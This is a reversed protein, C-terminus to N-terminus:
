AVFKYVGSTNGKAISSRWEKICNPAFFFGEEVGEFLWVHRNCMIAVIVEAVAGPSTHWGKLVFVADCEAVLPIHKRMYEEKPHHFEGALARAPNEVEWGMDQLVEEAQFFADYNWNKFGTM